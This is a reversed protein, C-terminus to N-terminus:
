ITQLHAAQLFFCTNIKTYDGFEISMMEQGLISYNLTADHNNKDAPTVRPFLALWLEHEISLYDGCHCVNPDAGGIPLSFFPV